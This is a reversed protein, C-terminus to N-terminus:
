VDAPEDPETAPRSNKAAPQPSKKVTSKQAPANRTAKKAATRKVAAKKAAANRSPVEEASTPGAGAPPADGLRERLSAVEARLQQVEEARALGLRSVVQEVESAILNGMLERNARSAAIIEEALRGVRGSAVDELGAQALLAKAGAAARARTTKTLGNVLNVYNQVAEAVM